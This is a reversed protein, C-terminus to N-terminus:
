SRAVVQMHLAAVASQAAASNSSRQLVWKGASESADLAAALENPDLASGLVVLDDSRSVM